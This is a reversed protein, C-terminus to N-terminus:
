EYKHIKRKEHIKTINKNNLINKLADGCYNELGGNRGTGTEGGREGLDVRGENRKLFSHAEWSHVSFM